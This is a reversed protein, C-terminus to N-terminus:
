SSSCPLDSSVRLLAFCFERCFVRFTSCLQALFSTIRPLDLPMAFLYALLLVFGFLTLRATFRTQYLITCSALRFAFYRLVLYSSSFIVPLHSDRRRSSSSNWVFYFLIFTLELQHTSTEASLFFFIPMPLRLIKEFLRSWLMSSNAFTSKAVMQEM